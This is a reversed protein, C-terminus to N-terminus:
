FKAVNISVILGNWVKGQYIWSGSGEGFLYDPGLAYGININNYGLQVFVGPSWFLGTFDKVLGPANTSAKIGATGLSVFGGFTTSFTNVNSGWINKELSFTNWSLKYGAGIGYSSGSEVQYPYSM